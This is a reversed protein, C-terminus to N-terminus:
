LGYAFDLDADDLYIFYFSNDDQDIELRVTGSIVVQTKLNQGKDILKQLLESENESPKLNCVVGKPEPRKNDTLYITWYQKDIEDVLQPALELFGTVSVEDGEHQEKNADIESVSM